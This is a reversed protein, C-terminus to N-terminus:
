RRTGCTPGVVEFYELGSRRFGDERRVDRRHRAIGRHDGGNFEGVIGLEVDLLDPVGLLRGELDFVPRNCLPRAWGADLQWVMRLRSEAPSRSHEDALELASRVLGVDTWGARTDVYARMRTISTLDAAAAMDMAVAAERRDELRRMEDFLARQVDTCRVGHRLVVEAPDLPERSRTIEHHPELRDDGAAIPVPLRTRGDRALGGFFNAGHLRLAAWGTVAGTRWIRMSQELIRQEVQVDLVDAPVYFGHTTRRWRGSADAPGLSAVHGVIGTGM